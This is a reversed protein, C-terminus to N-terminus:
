EHNRRSLPPDPATSHRDHMETLAGALTAIAGDLIAHISEGSRSDLWMTIAVDLPVLAIGALLRPRMDTHHDLGLRQGIADAVKERLRVLALTRDARMVYAAVQPRLAAHVAQLPSEHAPRAIVQERLRDGVRDLFGLVVEEKSPFYRFFTRRSIGAATAIEDVTVSDFDRDTLLDLAVETLHARVAERKRESLGVEAVDGATMCPLM